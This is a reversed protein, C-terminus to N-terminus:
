LEITQRMYVTVIKMKVKDSPTEEVTTNESM